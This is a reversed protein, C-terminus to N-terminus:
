KVIVKVRTKKKGSRITVIASGAKRATILGSKNVTAIKKKATSYKIKDQSTIPTVNPALMYKQGRTLTITKPSVKVKRTQVKARQVSVKVRAVAEYETVVYIYATGTKKAKIRGKRSVTAVSKNSSYWGYISDWPQLGGAVVNGTSKGVQLPIKKVNLRVTAQEAREEWDEGDNEDDRGNTKSDGVTITKQTTVSPANNMTCTITTVGPAAAVLKGDQIYAAATNSSTFTFNSSILPIDNSEKTKMTGLIGMTTYRYCRNYPILTWTEGVEMTDGLNLTLNSMSGDAVVRVPENTVDDPYSAAEATEGPTQGFCQVWYYGTETKVCGVGVVTSDPALINAKHGESGMWQAMVGAPTNSGIAANEATMRSNATFCWGGTPRMHDFYFSCEQARMMATAMLDKDMTLAGLGAAARQQNVLDLVQFAYSYLRNATENYLVVTIYSADAGPGTKCLGAPVQLSDEVPTNMFAQGYIYKVTSPITVDTLKTCNKFTQYAIVELGEPLVIKELSSCNGFCAAGTSKLNRSFTIDTLGTDDTFAGQDITTFTDGIILTHLAPDDNCMRYPVNSANAQINLYQLKWCGSYPGCAMSTVNAPVTATTVESQAFAWDELTTVSPPIIIESAKSAICASSGVVVVGDPIRVQGTIGAPMSILKRGDKSLLLGNRSAFAGNAPDVQYSLLSVDGWFAIGSIDTVNAPITINELSTCNGFVYDPLKTVHPGITVTKLSSCSYFVGEGPETADIYISEISTYEYFAARPIVTVNANIIISKISDKFSYWPWDEKKTGYDKVAGSGMITLTGAASDYAYSTGDGCTGTVQEGAAFSAETAEEVLDPDLDTEEVDAIEDADAAETDAEATDTGDHAAAETDAPFKNVTESPTVTEDPAEPTQAEATPDSEATNTESVPRSEATDAAQGDPSGSAESLETEVGKVAAAQELDLGAPAYSEGGVPDPVGPQSMEAPFVQSDHAAGDALKRQSIRAGDPLEAETEELPIGDMLDAGGEESESFLALDEPESEATLSSEQDGLDPLVEDSSDDIPASVAGASMVEAMPVSNEADVLCAVNETNEVGKGAMACAPSAVAMSAALMGAALRKLGLYRKM